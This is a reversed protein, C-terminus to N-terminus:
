SMHPRGLSYRNSQKGTGWVHFNLESPGHRTGCDYLIQGKSVEGQFLNRGVFFM